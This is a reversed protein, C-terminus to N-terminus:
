SFSLKSRPYFLSIASLAYRDPCWMLKTPPFPHSFETVKKLSTGEDNLQIIQVKNNSHDLFSGIALRYPNDAVYSFAAAFIMWPANYTFIEQNIEREKQPKKPIPQM